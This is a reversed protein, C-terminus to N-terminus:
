PAGEPEVPVLDHRGPWLLTNSPTRVDTCAPHRIGAVAVTLLSVALLGDLALLLRVLAVHRVTGGLPWGDGNEGGTLPHLYRDLAAAADRLVTVQDADPDVVVCAAVEIAQYTPAAAVVTVGAPAVRRVLFRTVAALDAASPVPPPGTGRDPPIVFVGVVGPIPRGPMQPHLGPVAIARAVDAGDARRALLGYDAPAVARGGTRLDAAGRRIADAVPEVDTGGFAAFPNTVGTVFPVSTLPTSIAAAAVHGARGGGAQYRVARVNRFGEPIRAGNSGDGFTVEGSTPDLVYVRDQGGHGTLSAVERWRLADAEVGFVDGGPDDDAELVLSGALVPTQLLRMRAGVGDPEDPIRELFEDRITRAATAAVANLRIGAIAARAPFEGHAIRVRLWHRVPLAPAGPPAAVRWRRPVGLQVVGGGTLGATEDRVLEAPVPQGGDLVEWVLLAPRGPPPLGVGGAAFPLPAGAAGAAVGLAVTPYPPDCTPPVTLGIWLANGPQPRLGFPPAPQTLDLPTLLGGDEVALDTLAAPTAHLPYATEFVVEDAGGAGAQFGGPVLVSGGATDSISLELLAAAATAPLQGVGAIRLHEVLAKEPLRNVRQLLPELQIALLRALAGGADARSRDTWDPTFAARRADIAAGVAQRTASVLEPTRAARGDAGVLRARRQPGAERGWWVETM